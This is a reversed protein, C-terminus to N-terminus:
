KWIPPLSQKALIMRKWEKCRELSSEPAVAIANEIADIANPEDALRTYCAALSALCNWDRRATLSCAQQGASTALRVQSTPVDPATAGIWAQALNVELPDAGHEAALKLDRLADDEEGNRLEVVAMLFLVRPDNKGARLADGLLRKAEKADGSRLCKYAEIVTVVPKQRADVDLADKLDAAVEAFKNLHILVVARACFVQASAGGDEITQNLALLLAAHEEATRFSFPDVTFFLEDALHREMNTFAPLGVETEFRNRIEAKLFEVRLAHHKTGLETRLSNQRASFVRITERIVRTVTREKPSKSDKDDKDTVTETVTRSVTRTEEPVMTDMIGRIKDLEVTTESATAKRVAILKEMAAKWKEVRVAREQLDRLREALPLGHTFKGALRSLDEAKEPLDAPSGLPDQWRKLATLPLPKDTAPPILAAIHKVHLASYVTNGSSLAGSLMGLVEGQANLVPSGICSRDRTQDLLFWETDADTGASDHEPFKVTLLYEDGRLPQGITPFFSSSDQRLAAPEWSNPQLFLPTAARSFPGGWPMVLEGVALKANPALVLPEMGRPLERVALIVIDKGKSAGVVGTVACAVNNPLLITASSADRLNSFTTAFYGRKDVLFCSGLTETKKGVTKLSGVVRNVQAVLPESFWSTVILALCCYIISRTYNM